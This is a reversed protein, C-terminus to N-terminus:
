SSFHPMIRSIPYSGIKTVWFFLRNNPHDFTYEYEESIYPDEGHCGLQSFEFPIPLSEILENYNENHNKINIGINNKKWIEFAEQYTNAIIIQTYHSRSCDDGIVVAFMWKETYNAIKQCVLEDFKSM